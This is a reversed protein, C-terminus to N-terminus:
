LLMLSAACGNKDTVIVSYTGDLFIRVTRLLYEMLGIVSYPQTGGTITLTISGDADGPCSSMWKPVQWNSLVAPETVTVLFMRQVYIQM